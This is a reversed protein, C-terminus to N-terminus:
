FQEFCSESGEGVSRNLQAGDRSRQSANLWATILRNIINHQHLQLHVQFHVQVQSLVLASLAGLAEVVLSIHLFMESSNVNSTPTAGVREDLETHGKTTLKVAYCIIYLLLLLLLAKNGYEVHMVHHIPIYDPM